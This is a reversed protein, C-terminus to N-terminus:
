PRQHGDALATIPVGHELQTLTQRVVALNERSAPVVECHPDPIFDFEGEKL